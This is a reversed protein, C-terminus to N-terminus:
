RERSASALWVTSAIRSIPASATTMPPSRVLRSTTRVRNARVISWKPPTPVQVHRRGERLRVTTATAVDKLPAGGVYAGAAILAKHYARWAAVYPDREGDKRSELNQPTEYILMIYKM